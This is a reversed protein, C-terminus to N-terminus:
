QGWVTLAAATNPDITAPERSAHQVRVSDIQADYTARWLAQAARPLKDFRDTECNPDSALDCLTPARGPAGSLVLDGWRASYRRGLTALLVRGAPAVYGSAMAFPDEGTFGEPIPLRLADLMAHSLDFAAAPATVKVGAHAGGPFHVLLPLGLMQESLDEGDSFPARGGANMPVDATVIFLTDDWLGAKRLSEVFAGLAQDQAIMATEYIAWMRTRDHENLRFRTRKGRARAIIQAARRPEMQGTYDVPPLKAAQQPTVDWPPHGGRAHVVVLARADRARMHQVTWDAAETIPATALPGEVPSYAAYKDWGRSFGFAEFTTPCGTFMATQVSGDRAAVAITTLAPLRAGPDEVAHARPALGTILSAFVGATVTTPARYSEFTTATRAFESLAPYAGQVLRSRDVGAFVVVVVLRAAPSPGATNGTVVVEPDGFLVRGGPSATSARLEITAIKGAFADLSLNVPKWRAGDGGDVTETGISVPPDGDNRVLVEARAQGTGAFGIATRLAAQPPIFTTCRVSSPARLAISRHPEGGLATNTVIERQTPAAYTPSDDASRGVRVWDLEGLPDTSGRLAGAFRIELSHAGAAIPAATLRTSVVRIQGRVLPLFGIPKSDLLVAMSRAAGGKVRTSVFIPAADDLVFRLHMRGSAVRAWTAGDHESDTVGPDVAMAWIGVIGETAPSGLDLLMGHHDVDCRPLREVLDLRPRSRAPEAKPAPAPAPASAIARPSVSTGTAREGRCSAAAGGMGALLAASCAWGWAPTAFSRANVPHAL